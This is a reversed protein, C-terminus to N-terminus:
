GFAHGHRRHGPGCQLPTPRINCVQVLRCAEGGVQRSPRLGPIPCRPTEDAYPRGNCVQIPICHDNVGRRRKSYPVAPDRRRLPSWQLGSYTHLPRESGPSSQLLAGRYGAQAPAVMASRFLYAITTQGGGVSPVPCRPTGDACPRGNCVQIPICHDNVVRRRSSTTGSAPSSPSRVLLRALPLWRGKQWARPKFGAARREGRPHSADNVRISEAVM